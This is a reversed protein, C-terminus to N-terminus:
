NTANERRLLEENRVIENALYEYGTNRLSELFGHYANSGRRVLDDLLRRVRDIRTRENVIYEMMPPTFVDKGLLEDSIINVDLDSVLTVRTRRLADKHIQEMGYAKSEDTQSNKSEPVRQGSDAETIRSTGSAQRYQGHETLKWHGIINDVEVNHNPNCKSCEVLSDTSIDKELIIHGEPFDDYPTRQCRYGLQFPKEDTQFTQTLNSLIEYINQKFGSCLQSELTGAHDETKIAQIEISNSYGGDENGKGGRIGILLKQTTNECTLVAVNHYICYWGGSRWLTM